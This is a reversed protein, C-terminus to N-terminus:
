GRFRCVFEEYLASEAFLVVRVDLGNKQRLPRHAPSGASNTIKKRFMRPQINMVGRDLLLLFDHFAFSNAFAGFARKHRLLAASIGAAGAPLDDRGALTAIFYHGNSGALITGGTGVRGLLPLVAKAVQGRVGGAHDIPVALPGASRDVGHFFGVGLFGGLPRGPTLLNGM